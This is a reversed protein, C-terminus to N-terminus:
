CKLCVGSTRELHNLFFVKAGKCAAFYAATLGAAGAGVVVVESASPQGVVRAQVPTQLRQARSARSSAFIGNLSARNGASLDVLSHSVLM